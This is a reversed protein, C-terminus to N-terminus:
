KAEEEVPKISLAKLISQQVSYYQADQTNGTGQMSLELSADLLVKYIFDWDERRLTVTPLASDSM